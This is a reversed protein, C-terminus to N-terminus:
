CLNYTSQITVFVANRIPLTVSGSGTPDPGKKDSGSGPRLLPGLILTKTHTFVM